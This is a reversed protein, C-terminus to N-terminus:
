LGASGKSTAHQTHRKANPQPKGSSAFIPMNRCLSPLPKPSYQMPVGEVAEGEQITGGGGGGLLPAGDSARKVGHTNCEIELTDGPGEMFESPAM